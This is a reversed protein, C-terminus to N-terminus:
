PNAGYYIWLRIREKDEFSLPPRGLPMSESAVRLYIPSMSPSGPVFGNGSFGGAQASAYTSLSLGGSVADIHCAKCEVFFIDNYIDTWTEPPIVNVMATQTASFYQGDWARVDFSDVGSFGPNSTYRLVGAIISALGNNPPTVLQLLPTQEADMMFYPLVVTQATITAVQSIPDLIPPTNNPNEDFNCFYFWDLITVNGDGDPDMDLPAMDERWYSWFLRWDDLNYMFDGNLDPDGPHVLVWTTDQYTELTDLDTLTFTYATTGVPFAVFYEYGPMGNWDLAYNAPPNTVAGELTVAEGGCITKARGADVSTQGLYLFLLLTMATLTAGM